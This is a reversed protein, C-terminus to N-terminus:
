FKYNAGIYLTDADFTFGMLEAQYAKYGAKIAVNNNIEYGAEVGYALNANSEKINGIVDDKADLTTSHLGLQVGAYFSDNFYYKPKVNVGFTYAKDKWGFGPAYNGSDEGFYRYEGEVGIVVQPAVQFDYGGVLGLGTGFSTSEIDNSSIDAGIYFGEKSALAPTSLLSAITLAFITKKM